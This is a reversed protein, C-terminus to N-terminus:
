QWEEVELLGGISAALFLQSFVNSDYWSENTTYEIACEFVITEIADTQLKGFFHSVFLSSLIM